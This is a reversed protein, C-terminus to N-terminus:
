DHATGKELLPILEGLQDIVIEAGAAFLREPQCYGGSVGIATYSAAVACVMDYETDGVYVARVREGRRSVLTAIKDVAGADVTHLLDDLHLHKLDLWVTEAAAASVVGVRAGRARLTELLPGAGARAPSTTAAMVHNWEREASAVEVAPVGLATFMAGLPLRFERSFEEASIAALGHGTLVTNTAARARAADAVITGNWDFLVLLDGM